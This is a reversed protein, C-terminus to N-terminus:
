QWLEIRRNDNNIKEKFEELINENKYNLVRINLPYNDIYDYIINKNIKTELVSLVRHKFHSSFGYSICDQIEEISEFDKNERTLVLKKAIKENMLNLKILDEYALNNASDLISDFDRSLNLPARQNKIENELIAITQPALMDKVKNFDGTAVSERILTGSVGEIRKVFLFKNKFDFNIRKLSKSLSVIVYNDEELKGEFLVEGLDTDIIKYPKPAVGHGKAIRDLIIDYAEFPRYGRPIFDTNLAQFMKALCLSYQGSGLIGMPPGEVVIDAGMDIAAQARAQRTMIFPIGRGSREFLGPVIAVFIGNSIKEKAVKMCHYHGKHFPNYETFDAILPKGANDVNKLSKNINEENLNCDFDFSCISDEYDKFFIKRDRKLIKKVFDQSPKIEDLPM